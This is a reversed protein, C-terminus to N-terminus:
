QIKEGDSKDYYRELIEKTLEQFREESIEGAEKNEELGRVIYEITDRSSYGPPKVELSKLIQGVKRGFQIDSIEKNHFQALLTNFEIEAPSKEANKPLKEKKM